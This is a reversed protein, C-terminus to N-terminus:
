GGQLIKAFVANPGPVMEIDGALIILVLLNTGRSPKFSHLGESSRCKGLESSNAVFHSISGPSDGFGICCEQNSDLSHVSNLWKWMIFGIVLILALRYLLRASAQLHGHRSTSREVSSHVLGLAM